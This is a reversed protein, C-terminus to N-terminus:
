RHYRITVGGNHRSHGWGHGPWASRVPVPRRVTVVPRVYVARSRVVPGYYVPAANVRHSFVYTPRIVYSVAPAPASYARDYVVTHTASGCSSYGISLHDARAAGGGAGWAAVIGTLLVCATTSKGVMM